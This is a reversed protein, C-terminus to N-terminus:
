SPFWWFWLQEREAGISYDGHGHSINEVGARIQALFDLSALLQCAGANETIKFENERQSRQLRLISFFVCRAQGRRNNPVELVPQTPPALAIEVSATQRNLMSSIQDRLLQSGSSDATLHYGPYNRENELYRWLAIIPEPETAMSELSAGNSM